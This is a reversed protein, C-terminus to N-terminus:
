SAVQGNHDHGAVHEGRPRDKDSSVAPGTATRRRDVAARFLAQARRRGTSTSPVPDTRRPAAMRASLAIEAAELEAAVVEHATVHDCSRLPALLVHTAPDWRQGAGDCMPCKRLVQLRAAEREANRDAVWRAVEDCRWCKDLMQGPGLPRHERCRPTQEDLPPLTATAIM